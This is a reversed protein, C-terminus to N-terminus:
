KALDEKLRPATVFKKLPPGDLEKIKADDISVEQKVEQDAFATLIEAWDVSVIRKLGCEHVIHHMFHMGAFHKSILLHKLDLWEKAYKAQLKAEEAGAMLWSNLDKLSASHTLKTNSALQRNGTSSGSWLQAALQRDHQAAEATKVGAQCGRILTTVM